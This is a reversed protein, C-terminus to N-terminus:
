RGPEPHRCVVELRLVVFEAPKLPAYAVLVPCIGRAIDHPTVTSADCRVWWAEHPSRGQLAGEAHLGALFPAIADTLRGWLRADNTGEAAWGTGRTISDAVHMALRRTAVYRHEPGADRALTRAGWVLVGKGPFRRICNVGLPNLLDTHRSDLDIEPAGVEVLVAQPGAPSRAVGFAADTRAIVGAVAGCPVRAPAAGEAGFRPVYLAANRAAPNTLGLSDYLAAHTRPIAEVDRWAAPPDVLLLAGRSACLSLGAAWLAPPTDRGPMDPPICLLQFSAAHLLVELGAVYDAERLPLGIGGRSQQGRRVRHLRAVLADTGGNAFFDRVAAGMPCRPDVRGFLDVYADFTGVRVAGAEDACPGRPARGLFACVSTPMAVVPQGPVHIDEVYVGPFRPEPAM